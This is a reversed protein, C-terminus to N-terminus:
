AEEPEPLGQVDVVRTGFIRDRFSRGGVFASVHEVLAAALLGACCGLIRGLDHNMVEYIKARAAICVVLIFPFGKSLLWGIGVAAYSPHGGTRSVLRVEAFREGVTGGRRTTWHVWFLVLAFVFLTQPYPSGPIPILALAEFFVIPVALDVLDARLRKRPAALAAAARAKQVVESVSGTVPCNLGVEIGGDARKVIQLVPNQVVTPQTASTGGPGTAVPLPTVVTADSAASQAGGSSGIAELEAVLAAYSPHRDERRKALMRDVTRSLADPVCPAVSALSPPVEQIHKMCLKMASAGDFVPRGAVLHFLTAGLSYIDSRFDLTEGQAQEPSMYRPTGVIVGTATAVADSALRKALGFDAVKISGDAAVLLNEPKVDRHVVGHAAAAELGRAAQAAARAAERWPLAGLHLRDGLSKGPVLEMAFFLTGEHEGFAHVQVLNPHSIRAAAKAEEKFRVVFSEDVALGKSITKLAVDRELAEDRARYVDGMGGRGLHEVIVYAGLKSGRPLSRESSATPAPSGAATTNDPRANDPRANDPRASDPRAGARAEIETELPESM